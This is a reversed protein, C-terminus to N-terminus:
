TTKFVQGKKTKRRFKLSFHFTQRLKKRKALGLEALTPTEVPATMNGISKQYPQGGKAWGTEILM